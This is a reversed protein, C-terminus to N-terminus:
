IKEVSDRFRRARDWATKVKMNLIEGIERYTFGMFHMFWPIFLDVELEPFERVRQLVARLVDYDRSPPTPESAAKAAHYELFIANDTSIEPRNKAKRYADIMGNRAITIVWTKRSSLSGDYSDWRKVAKYMATSAADHAAPDAKSCNLWGACYGLISDYHERYFQDIEVNRNM